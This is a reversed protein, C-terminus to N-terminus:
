KSACSYIDQSPTSGNRPAHIPSRCDRPLAWALTFMIREVLEQEEVPPLVEAEYPFGEPPM